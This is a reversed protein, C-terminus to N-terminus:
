RAPFKKMARKIAKWILDRDYEPNVEMYRLATSRWVLESKERDMVDIVLSGKLFKEYAPYPDLQLMDIGNFLGDFDHVIESSDEEMIIFFNLLLDSNEDGQLYGKKHMNFAVANAIEDVVKQNYYHEPGQYTVECGELWCWSEYTSFDHNEKQLTKIQIACGSLILVSIILGILRKMHSLESSHM